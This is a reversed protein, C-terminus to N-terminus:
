EASRKLVTKKIKNKSKHILSEVASVTTGMIKAIEKQKMQDYYYLYFATRQRHSLLNIARELHEIQTETSEQSEL